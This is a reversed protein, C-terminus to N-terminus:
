KKETAEVHKPLVIGDEPLLQKGTHAGQPHGFCTPAMTLFFLSLYLKLASPQSIEIYDIICPTLILILFCLSYQMKLTVWRSVWFFAGQHHRVYTSVHLLQLINSVKIRSVVVITAGGLLALLHCIPNLETNLPNIFQWFLANTPQNYM